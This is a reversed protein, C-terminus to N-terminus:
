AVIQRLLNCLVGKLLEEDSDRLYIGLNNEESQVCDKVSMLGRGGDKRKVYLRDVDSKSHFAGYMTMIKRTTRDLTKLEDLKWDIIGAGYRLLSVPWTNIAKINNKGNLQSKLVLRLRRKNLFLRQVERKCM